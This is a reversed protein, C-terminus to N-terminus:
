EEFSFRFPNPSYTSVSVIAQGPSLDLVDWDEVAEGYGIDEIDKGTYSSKTPIVYRKRNRGFRGQMFLISERDTLRFTITTGFASLISYAKDKGYTDIIQNINQM